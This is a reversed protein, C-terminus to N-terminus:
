PGVVSFARQQMIALSARPVLFEGRAASCLVRRAALVSVPCCLDRLYCLMFLPKLPESSGYDTNFGSYLLPAALAVVPSWQLSVISYGSLYLCGISYM